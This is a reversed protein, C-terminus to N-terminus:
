SQETNKTERYNYVMMLGLPTSIDLMELIFWLSLTRGMFPAFMFAAPLFFIVLIVIQSIKIEIMESKALLFLQLMMLTQVIGFSIISATLAAIMWPAVAFIRFISYWIYIIAPSGILLARISRIRRKPSTTHRFIEKSEETSIPPTKQGKSFFHWLLFGIGSALGPFYVAWGEPGATLWPTQRVIEPVVPEEPYVRGAVTSFYGEPLSLVITLQENSQPANMLQGTITTGNVQWEVASSDARDRAGHTFSLRSEDFPRPMEITFTLRLIIDNLNYHPILDHRLENMHELARTRVPGHVQRQPFYYTEDVLYSSDDHVVLNIHLRDIVRPETAAFVTAAASFLFAFALAAILIIFIYEPRKKNLM